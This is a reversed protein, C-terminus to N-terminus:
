PFHCRWLGMEIEGDDAVDIVPLRGEHLMEVPQQLGAGAPHNDFSHVKSKRANGPTLESLADPKHKL